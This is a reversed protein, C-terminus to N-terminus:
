SYATHCVALNWWVFLHFLSFISPPNISAPLSTAGERDMSLERNGFWPGNSTQHQHRSRIETSQCMILPNTSRLKRMIVASDYWLRRARHEKTKPKWRGCIRFPTDFHRRRLYLGRDNSTMCDSGGDRAGHVRAFGYALRM